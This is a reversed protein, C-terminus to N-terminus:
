RMSGTIEHLVPAPQQYDTGLNDAWAQMAEDGILRGADVDALGELTLRRRQEAAAPDKADTERALHQQREAETEPHLAGVGDGGTSNATDM